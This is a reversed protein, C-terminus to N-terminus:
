IYTMILNGIDIPIEIINHLLRRYINIINKLRQVANYIQSFNKIDATKYKFILERLIRDKRILTFIDINDLADLLKMDDFHQKLSIIYLSKKYDIQIYNYIQKELDYGLDIAKPIRDSYNSEVIASTVIDCKRLYDIPFRNSMKQHFHDFVDNNGFQYAHATYYLLSNSSTTCIFTNGCMFQIFDMMNNEIVYRITLGRCGCYVLSGHPHNEIFKDLDNSKIIDECQM